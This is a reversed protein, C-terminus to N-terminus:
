IAVIYSTPINIKKRKMNLMENTTIIKATCNTQVQIHYLSLVLKNLLLDTDYGHSLRETEKTPLTCKVGKNSDDYYNKSTKRDENKCQSAFRLREGDHFIESAIQM